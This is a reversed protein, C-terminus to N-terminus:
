KEINEVIFAEDFYMGFIDRRDKDKIGEKWLVRDVVKVMFEYNFQDPDFNPNKGEIGLHRRYVKMVAEELGEEEMLKLEKKGLSKRVYDWTNLLDVIAERKRGETSKAGGILKESLVGKYKSFDVPEKKSLIEERRKPVRATEKREGATTHSASEPKSVRYSQAYPERSIKGKPLIKRLERGSRLDQAVYREAEIRMTQDVYPNKLDYKLFNLILGAYADVNHSILKKIRQYESELIKINIQEERFKGGNKKIEEIHSNIEQYKYRITEQLVELIKARFERQEANDGSRDVTLVGGVMPLEEAIPPKDEEEALNGAIKVGNNRQSPTLIEKKRKKELIQEYYKKASRNIEGGIIDIAKEDKIIEKFAGSDVLQCVFDEGFHEILRDAIISLLKNKGSKLVLFKWIEEIDEGTSPPDSEELINRLHEEGDLLLFEELCRELKEKATLAEKKEREPLKQGTEKKNDPQALIKEPRPPADYERAPGEEEMGEQLLAKKEKSNLNRKRKGATKEKKEGQIIFEPPGEIGNKEKNDM